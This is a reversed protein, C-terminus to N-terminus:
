GLAPRLALLEVRQVVFDDVVQDDLHRAARELHLAQLHAEFRHRAPEIEVLTAGARELADDLVPGARHRRQLRRGARVIAVLLAAILSAVLAILPRWSRPRLLRWRSLRGGRGAILRGGVREVAVAVLAAGAPAAAAAAAAASRALSPRRRVVSLAREGPDIRRCLIAEIVACRGGVM